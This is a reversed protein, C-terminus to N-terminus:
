LIPTMNLPQLSCWACDCKGFDYVIQVITIMVYYLEAIRDYSQVELQM